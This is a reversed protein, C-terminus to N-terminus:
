KGLSLLLRKLRNDLSDNPYSIGLHSRELQTIRQSVSKQPHTQRFAAMELRGLTKYLKSQQSWNGIDQHPASINPSSSAVQAKNLVDPFRRVLQDMRESLSQHPFSTKYLKYELRDLRVALQHQPFTRRLLKQELATVLPYSETQRNSSPVPSSPTSPDAQHLEPLPAVPLSQKYLSTLRLLRTSPNTTITNIEGYITEELQNLREPPTLSPHTAGLFRQELQTLQEDLSQTYATQPLVAMLSFSLFATISLLTLVNKHQSIISAKTKLSATFPNFAFNM